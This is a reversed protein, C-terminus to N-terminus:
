AEKAKKVRADLYALEAPYILEDTRLKEIKMKIKDVKEFTEKYEKTFEKILRAQGSSFLEQDRVKDM